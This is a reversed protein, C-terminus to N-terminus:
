FLFIKLIVMSPFACSGLISKIPNSKNTYNTFIKFLFLFPEKIFITKIIATDTTSNFMKKDESFSKEM